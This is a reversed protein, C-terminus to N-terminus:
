MLLYLEHYIINYDVFCLTFYDNQYINVCYNM